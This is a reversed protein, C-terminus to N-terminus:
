INMNEEKSFNDWFFIACIHQINNRNSDESQFATYFDISKIHLLFLNRLVHSVNMTSNSGPKLNKKDKLTRNQSQIQYSCIIYM